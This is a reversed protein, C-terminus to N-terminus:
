FFSVVLNEFFLLETHVSVESKEHGSSGVSPGQLCTLPSGPRPYRSRFSHHGKWLHSSPLSKTRLQIGDLLIFRIQVRSAALFM